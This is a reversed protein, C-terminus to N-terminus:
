NAAMFNVGRADLLERRKTGNGDITVVYLVCREGSVTQNHFYQTADDIKGFWRAHFDSVAQFQM